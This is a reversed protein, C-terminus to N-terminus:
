NLYHKCFKMECCHHSIRTVQELQWEQMLMENTQDINRFFLSKLNSNSYLWLKITRLWCYICNINYLHTCVVAIDAIECDASFTQTHVSNQGIKQPCFSTPAIQPMSLLLDSSRFIMIILESIRHGNRQNM